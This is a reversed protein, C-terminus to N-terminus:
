NDQRGARRRAAHNILALHGNDAVFGDQQTEDQVHRRFSRALEEGNKALIAQM